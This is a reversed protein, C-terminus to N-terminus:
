ELWFAEYIAWERECTDWYPYIAAGTVVDAQTEADNLGDVLGQLGSKINEANPWHTWTREESTPIGFFLQVDTESVARSIEIVQFKVWQRYLPAMPMASDYTMVVVQDVRRAVERYYSARWAVKGVFPWRVEPFIPWIRRTAVSLTPQLGLVHRVEDLLTLVATDDTCIPEPDFHVGDFGMDRVVKVCFEIITEHVDANSLNVYKLPLGIWAQVNLAPQASKLMQICEAEYSYSPNFQGDPKLYSTYVFVYRIQLRNLDNILSLVEGENCVDNAWEVGLWVANAHQNFHAGPFTTAPRCFCYRLIVCLGITALV